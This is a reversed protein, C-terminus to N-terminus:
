QIEEKSMSKYLMEAREWDEYTDIDVTRWQPIVISIGTKYISDVELWSKVRGWYFQGVDFYAPELDQTRIKECEPYFPQICGSQDRRLARQVASPFETVPFTYAAIGNKLLELAAKIDSGQILPVAPYICCVYRFEWGMEQLTQIGHAIVPTTGTYDDALDTPRMFPVEAGWKQAIAAIEEDETSVVIREFLKTEHAAEIAYAIMPKGCFSKINKRPIRKSGGRAPIIAINM